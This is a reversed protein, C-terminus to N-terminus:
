VNPKLKQNTHVEVKINHHDVSCHGALSTTIMKPSPKRLSKHTQEKIELIIVKHKSQNDHHIFMQNYSTLQYKLELRFRVNKTDNVISIDRSPNPNSISQNIM